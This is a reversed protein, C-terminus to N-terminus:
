FYLKLALQVIRPDYTATITGFQPLGYVTGNGSPSQFNAQNFANFWEGRIEFRMSEHVPVTKLLSLDWNFLYPGRNDPLMRGITGFSYLPPTALAALNFYGNIRDIVSGSSRTSIGTSDPSRDPIGPM